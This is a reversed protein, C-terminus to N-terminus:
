SRVVEAEWLAPIVLKLWRLWGIKKKKFSELEIKRCSIIKNHMRNQLGETVLHIRKKSVTKSQRGPQLATAHDLSM